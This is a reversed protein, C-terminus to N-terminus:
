IDDGTSSFGALSDPSSSAAFFAASSARLLRSCAALSVFSCLLFCSSSALFAASSSCFCYRSAAVAVTRTSSTLGRTTAPPSLSTKLRRQRLHLCTVASQGVVELREPGVSRDTPWTADRSGEALRNLRM